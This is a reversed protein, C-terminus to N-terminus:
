GLFISSDIPRFRGFINGALNSSHVGPRPSKREQVAFPDLDKGNFDDRSLIILGFRSLDDLNVILDKLYSGKGEESELGIHGGMLETLQKSITTGLGTGGYERTTSGDAQTFSEFIKAQKSPPIGIGTDRVSIRINVQDGTAEVLEGKILIEGRHTFKLANGALNSLIQRLRGPDGILRTPVEPALFCIFELGKEEARLAISNALDEVLVRFDFPIEELELKGAEIKSFDLIDNVLSLLSNAERGITELINRQREDLETDLGLETMGMIGNLPTRIEHSMNALFESKARNATEAALKAQELTEVRKRETVDRAIGRFGIVQGSSNRVLSISSELNRSTGDRGTLSWEVGTTAKGTRFVVNLVQYVKKASERDTLRLSNMGELQNKPYGFLRGMAENVFTFKGSLDIEYYGEGISELITRYREESQRLTEEMRKRETIDYVVVTVGNIKGAEHVVRANLIVWFERGTKCRMKLELNDFAKDRALMQGFREEFRDQSEEALLDVPALSLFEARTYGTYECMVDNVNRFKGTMLDLEYIGAPAHNVLQKYRAESERLAEEVRKQEKLTDNM